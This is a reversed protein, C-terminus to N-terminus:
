LLLNKHGETSPWSASHAKLTPDMVFKELVSKAREMRNKNESEAAWITRLDGIFTEMVPLRASMTDGLTSSTSIPDHTARRRANSCSRKPFGTGAKKRIM